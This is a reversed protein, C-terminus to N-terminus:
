SGKQGIRNELEKRKKENGLQEYAEKMLRYFSLELENDELLYALGEEAVELAEEPANTRLLALGKFYYFEPQAPFNSVAETSQKLLSEYDRNEALVALSRRFGDVTQLVETAPTDVEPAEKMVVPNASSDRLQQIRARLEETQVPAHKLIEEDALVLEARDLDEARICLGALLLAQKWGQDRYQEALSVAKEPAKQDLYLQAAAHLYWVNTPDQELANVLHSQALSYQKQELYIRGLEYYVAPEDPRMEKCKSLLGLAKDLNGIGKEKLAEFFSEQFADEVGETALDASGEEQGMVILPICWLAALLLITISRVRTIM